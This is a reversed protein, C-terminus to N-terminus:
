FFIVHLFKDFEWPTEGGQGGNPSKEPGVLAELFRGSGRSEVASIILM